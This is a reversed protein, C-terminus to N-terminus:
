YKIFLLYITIINHRTLYFLLVFPRCMNLISGLKEYFSKQHMALQLWSVSGLIYLNGVAGHEIVPKTDRMNPLHVRLCSMLLPIKWLLIYIKTSYHILKDDTKLHCIVFSEYIEVEVFICVTIM